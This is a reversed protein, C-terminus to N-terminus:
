SELSIVLAGFAVAFAEVDGLERDEEGGAKMTEGGGECVLGCFRFGTVQVIEDVPAGCIDNQHARVNYLIHAFEEIFFPM